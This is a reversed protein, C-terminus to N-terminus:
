IARGGDVALEAGTVFSSDDSLLFIVPGAIEAPEGGRAMPTVKAVFEHAGEGLSDMLMKTMFPGPHITNVRIGEPALELAASKSLAAVAGKTAAYATLNVFGRTASVSGINVISGGGVARMAPLVHKMGMLFSTQNTAVLQAVRGLDTEGLSMSESIGACNVLGDVRGFTAVAQQVIERWAQESTVDLGVFMADGGLERAIAMGSSSDRGGFVVKGGSADIGRVIAEGMGRTGGAVIIVRGDLRSPM